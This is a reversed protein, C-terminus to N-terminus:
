ISKIVVTSNSTLNSLAINLCKIFTTQSLDVNDNSFYEFHVSHIRRERIDYFYIAETTCVALYQLINASNVVSSLLTGELTKHKTRLINLEHAFM